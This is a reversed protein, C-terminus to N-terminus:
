MIFFLAVFLVLCMNNLVVLSMTTPWLSFIRGAQSDVIFSVAELAVLKSSTQAYNTIGLIYDSFIQIIKYNLPTSNSYTLFFFVFFVGWLLFFVFIIVHTHLKTTFYNPKLFRIFFLTILLWLYKFSILSSIFSLLVGISFPINTLRNSAFVLRLHLFVLCLYIFAVFTLTNTQQIFNHRTPLLNLRVVLILDLVIFIVLFTNYYSCSNVPTHLKWVLYLISLLLLIEVADNVWFYGWITSQFGWFGGLLLTLTLLYVLTTGRFMLLTSSYQRMSQLCRLLLLILSVYFLLPHITITGIYLSDVLHKVAVLPKTHIYCVLLKYCFFLVLSPKIPIFLLFIALLLFTNADWYNLSFIYDLYYSNTTTEYCSRLYLVSITAACVNSSRNYIKKCM